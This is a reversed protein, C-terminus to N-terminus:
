VGMQFNCKLRMEVSFWSTQLWLKTQRKKPLQEEICRQFVQFLLLADDDHVDRGDDDHDGHGDDHDDGGHPGHGDDHDGGDHADRDDDHADDGDRDDDDDHVGDNSTCIIAWQLRNEMRMLVPLLRQARPLIVDSQGQPPLLPLTHYIRKLPYADRQIKNKVRLKNAVTGQSDHGKQVGESLVWLRYEIANPIEPTNQRIERIISERSDSCLDAWILESERLEVPRSLRPFLVGATQSTTNGDVRVSLKGTSQTKNENM